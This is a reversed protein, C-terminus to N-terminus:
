QKYNNQTGISIGGNQGNSCNAGLACGGSPPPTPNASPSWAQPVRKNPPQMNAAATRGAGQAGFNNVVNGQNVGVAGSGSITAETKAAPSDRHPAPWFFVVLLGIVMLGTGIVFIVKRRSHTMSAIVGPFFIEFADIIAGTAVIGLGIKDSIEM